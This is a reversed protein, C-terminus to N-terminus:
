YYYVPRRSRLPYAVARTRRAPTRRGAARAKKHAAVRRKGRGAYKLMGGVSEIAKGGEAWLPAHIPADVYDVTARQAMPMSYVVAQQPPPSVQYAMMARQSPKVHQEVAVYQPRQDRRSCQSLCDNYSGSVRGSKHMRECGSACRRMEAVRSM